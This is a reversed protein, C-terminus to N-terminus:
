ELVGVGAACYYGSAVDCWDAEEDDAETGESGCDCVPVYCEASCDSSDADIVWCYYM